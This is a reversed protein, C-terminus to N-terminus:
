PRVKRKTKLVTGDSDVIDGEAHAHGGGAAAASASGSGSKGGGSKGGARGASKGRSPAASDGAAIAPQAVATAAARERKAHEDGEADYRVDDGQVWSDVALACGFGDLRFCLESLM